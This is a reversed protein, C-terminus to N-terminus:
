PSSNVYFDAQNVQIVRLGNIPFNSLDSGSLLGQWPGQDLHVQGSGDKYLFEQAYIATAGGTDGLWAGYTQLAKAIIKGGPSLPLSNVDISPDLQVRVGEPIANPDTSYGDAALAPWVPDKAVVAGDLSL